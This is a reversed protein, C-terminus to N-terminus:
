GVLWGDFTQFISLGSPINTGFGASRVDVYDGAALTRIVFAHCDRTVSTTGTTANGGVAVTNVCIRFDIPANAISTFFSVKFAYTGAVPANFRATSTDFHGGVNVDVTDYPFTATASNFAANFRAHFVPQSPMTIRGGSDVVLREAAATVDYLYFNNQNWGTASGALGVDFSRSDTTLRTTAYGSSSSNTIHLKQGPSSAGIGVNGSSDLSIADTTAADHRLGRVKLTSM